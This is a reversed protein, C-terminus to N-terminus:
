CLAEPETTAMACVSLPRTGNRRIRRRDPLAPQAHGRAPGPQRPSLSGPHRGRRGTAPRRARRLLDNGAEDELRPGLALAALEFRVRGDSERGAVRWAVHRVGTSLVAAKPVLVFRGWTEPREPDAAALQPDLVSSLRVRVLSGPLLRGQPDRLHLHVERTRSERELEPAIWAITAAVEPIEGRDDSALQAVQGPRLAHAQIEPVSIVVRYAAPDALRLLVTDAKVEQGVLPLAPAARM